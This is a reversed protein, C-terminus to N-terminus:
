PMLDLTKWSSQLEYVKNNIEKSSADWLYGLIAGGIFSSGDLLLLTKPTIGGLAIIQQHPFREKKMRTLIENNALYGKKSLSDFVPSLFLYDFLPPIKNIEDMQHVSSSIRLGKEKWSSLEKKCYERRQSEKFHIGGINYENILHFYQHLTLRSHYEIPIVEFLNRVENESANPKRIHIIDIGNELWTIIQYAENSFFEEKTIGVIM